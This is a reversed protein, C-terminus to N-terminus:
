VRVSDTGYDEEDDRYRKSDCTRIALMDYCDGDRRRGNGFDKIGNNKKVIFNGVPKASARKGDM